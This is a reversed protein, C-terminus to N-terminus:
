ETNGGNGGGTKKLLPLLPTVLCYPDTLAGSFLDLIQLFDRGGGGWLFVCGRDM